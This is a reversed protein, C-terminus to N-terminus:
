VLLMKIKEQDTCINTASNYEETEFDVQSVLNPKIIYANDTQVTRYKESENILCEHIKEGPRIGIIQIPKNYKKSFAQAIDIIKYSVIRPIFIDGSEGNEMANLILDVAGDLPLLFRTMREDTVPFFKKQPDEGIQHFLPILSGRSNIVNGYRVNIFKPKQIYRSKEILMRECISKCMGYVNVPSVAKDTSIFLVTKLEQLLNKLVNEIVINIVNQVGIINTLICQDINYECQDIHKLAAAIIIKHPKTQLIAHELCIKERIDCLIYTLEPYKTKMKWQKDEDRSLIVIKYKARLREVFWNGLSGTGGIFLITEM